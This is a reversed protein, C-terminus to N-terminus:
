PTDGFRPAAKLFDGLALVADACTGGDREVTRIVERVEPEASIYRTVVEPPQALLDAMRREVAQRREHAEHAKTSQQRATSRWAEAREECAALEVNLTVIEEGRSHFEVYFWVGASLVTGIAIAKRMGWIFKLASIM